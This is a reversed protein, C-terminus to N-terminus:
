GICAFHLRRVLERPVAFFVAKKTSLFAAYANSLHGSTDPFQLM